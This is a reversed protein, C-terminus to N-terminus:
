CFSPGIPQRPPGLLRVVTACSLLPPHRHIVISFPRQNYSHKYNAFVLKLAATNGHDDTLKFLQGIQIPSPSVVSSTSTMEGVRLFAYFATSCMAKFQCVQYRCIALKGASDLLKHLIPLTIPLRSDLRSGQKHYGKLMQTVFFAKTPDDFGLFKHSFGLASVYSSVTSPAYHKDYM